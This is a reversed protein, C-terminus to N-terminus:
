GGRRSPEAASDMKKTFHPLDRREHALGGDMDHRRHEVLRKSQNHELRLVPGCSEVLDPPLPRREDEQVHHHRADVPQVNGLPHRRIGPRPVDGDNEQRCAHRHLIAQAGLLQSRDAVEDLREIGELERCLHTVHEFADGATLEAGLLETAKAQLLSVVESRDM